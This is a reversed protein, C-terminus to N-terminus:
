LLLRDVVEDAQAAAPAASSPEDVKRKKPSRPGDISGFAQAEAENEAQAQTTVL